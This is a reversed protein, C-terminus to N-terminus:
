LKMGQSKMKAALGQRPKNSMSFLPEKSQLKNEIHKHFVVDDIVKEVEASCIQKLNTLTEQSPEYKHTAMALKVFRSNDHANIIIEDIDKQPIDSNSLIYNATELQEDGKSSALNKLPENNNQNINGGLDHFKKVLDLQGHNASFLVCEDLDHFKNDSQEILYDVIKRNGGGFGCGVLAWEVGGAEQINAGNEVLLKVMDFNNGRINSIFAGKKDTIDQNVDAGRKIMHEATKVDNVWILADAENLDAGKDLLKDILGINETIRLPHHNFDQIAEKSMADILIEAIENKNESLANYLAYDDNKDKSNPNAGKSLLYKVNEVNDNEVATFLMQDLKEQEM